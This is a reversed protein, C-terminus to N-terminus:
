NIGFICCDPTAPPSYPSGGAQIINNTYTITVYEESPFVDVSSHPNRQYQRLEKLIRRIRSSSGATSTTSLGPGFLLFQRVIRNTALTSAVGFM